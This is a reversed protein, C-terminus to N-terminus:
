RFVIGNKLIESEVFPSNEFDSPIFPMPSIDWNVVAKYKRILSKDDFRNGTFSNSVLALDIDSWENATGVAYSGFLIARQIQINNKELEDIFKNIKESVEANIEVM